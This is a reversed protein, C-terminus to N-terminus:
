NETLKFLELKQLKGQTRKLDIIKKGRKKMCCRLM